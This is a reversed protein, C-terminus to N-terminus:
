RKSREVALGFLVLGAGAVLCGLPLWILGAGVAFVAFGTVQLVAALVPASFLSKPFM